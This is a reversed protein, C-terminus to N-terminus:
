KCSYIRKMLRKWDELRYTQFKRFPTKTYLSKGRAFFLSLVWKQRGSSDLSPKVDIGVLCVTKRKHKGFSARNFTGLYRQLMQIPPPSSLEIAKTFTQM